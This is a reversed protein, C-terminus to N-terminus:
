CENDIIQMDLDWIILYERMNSKRQFSLGTYRNLLYFM